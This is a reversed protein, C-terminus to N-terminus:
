PKDGKSKYMKCEPPRVKNRCPWIVGPAQVCGDAGNSYICPPHPEWAPCVHKCYITVHTIANRKGDPAPQPASCYGSVEDWWRCRQITRRRTM